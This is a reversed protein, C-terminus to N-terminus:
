SSTESQLRTVNSAPCPSTVLKPMFAFGFNTERVALRLHDLGAYVFKNAVCNHCNSNCHADYLVKPSGSYLLLTIRTNFTLSYLM